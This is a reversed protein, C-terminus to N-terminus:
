ARRLVLFEAIERLREAREAYPALEAIAKTALEKAIEHSREL